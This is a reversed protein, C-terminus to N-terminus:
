VTRMIYLRSIPSKIGMTRVKIGHRRSWRVVAQRAASVDLGSGTLMIEDFVHELLHWPYRLVRGKEGVKVVEFVKMM